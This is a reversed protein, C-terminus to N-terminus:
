NGFFRSFVKTFIGKGGEEKKEELEPYELYDYAIDFIHPKFHVPKIEPIYNVLKPLKGKHATILSEKFQAAKDDEKKDGEIRVHTLGLENAFDQLKEFSVAVNEKSVLTDYISSKRGEERKADDIKVDHMGKQLTKFETSERELVKAHLRCKAFEVNKILSNLDEIQQDVRKSAGSLKQKEYTSIVSEIKALIFELISYAQAYRRKIIFAGSAAVNKFINYTEELVDYETQLRPDNQTSEKENNLLQKQSRILKTYLKIITEPNEAKERKKAFFLEFQNCKQFVQAPEYYKELSLKLKISQLYNILSNFIQVSGESKAAESTKEKSVISIAEEIQSFISPLLNKPQEKGKSQLEKLNEDITHLINQIKESNIPIKKNNFTIETGGKTNIGVESISKIREDIKDQNVFKKNADNKM